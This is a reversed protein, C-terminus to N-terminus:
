QVDSYPGWGVVNRARYMLRYSRGAVIGNTITVTKLLSNSSFGIVSRFLGSMGDDIM